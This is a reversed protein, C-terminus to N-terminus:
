ETRLATAPDTRAARWAPTLAAAIGVVILVGAALTMVVPDKPTVGYLLTSVLKGLALSVAVGLLAGLAVVRVGEGVVLQVVDRFEAGLAIRVGMEHTRQSVAYAIVSYVGIAAVVLALMGFAAFLSAGLRWPRLEREMSETMRRVFAPESGQAAAKFEERVRTTIATMRSPDVRLVLTSMAKAPLYFNMSPTEIMRSRHADSVVGVVYSCDKFTIICKGVANEGPWFARAMTENVILAHASDTAAFNRGKVIHMGVAAFYNPTVTNSMPWPNDGSIRPLSDRDPLKIRFGQWGWMPGMYATAVMKVGPERAIREAVQQVMAIQQELPIRGRDESGVTAFMVSDVDYGVKIARVNGLSRVFLGAGVILVVSLATQLVLLASRLRSRQYGGDRVSGKMAEIVSRRRALMVPAIGNALGVVITLVLTVVVVRGDIVGSPWHVNPLLLKRLATGAWWSAGLACLGGIGALMVSETVAQAYVRGRSAGLALRLAVERRQRTARVLLLTAVNACAILLLVIAVGAVRVGISVERQPNGPGRAEIISGPLIVAATDFGFGPIKPTHDYAVTTRDFIPADSTGAPVRTVLVFSANFSKYWPQGLQGGAPNNNLPAFVDVADVDVGTFGPAAVGVVTFPTKDLMIKRGIVASDGGFRRRWLASSLIAVPTPAEVHAEDPGFLRGLSVGVGLTSFYNPSVWAVRGSIQGDDSGIRVGDADYAAIPTGPNAATIQEYHAYEFSQYVMFEKPNRFDHAKVYFRRLESPATVGDPPRVFLRDLFSFMAGNAGVGLAITLVVMASFGPSRRLMRAAHRIDRGLAELGQELDQEIRRHWAM